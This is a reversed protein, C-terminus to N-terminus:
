WIQKIRDIAFAVRSTRLARRQWVLYLPTSVDAEPQLNHLRGRDIWDGAAVDPLVTWARFESCITAISRLDPMVVRPTIDPTSNFAEKWFRNVLLLDNSNTILPLQQLREALEERGRVDVVLDPHCLLLLKVEGLLHYAFRAEDPEAALIAVNFNGDELGKYLTEGHGLHMELRLATDSFGAVLRPGYVAFLEAFAGIHLLGTVQKLSARRSEIAYDLADISKAVERALGDAMPTPTVGLRSRVFLQAGIQQELVAIQQSVTPQTIALADAAKRMTGNRYVALFTKLLEVAM